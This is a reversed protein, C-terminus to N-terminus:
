GHVRSIQNTGAFINISFLYIATFILMALQKM